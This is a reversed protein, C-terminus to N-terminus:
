ISPVVGIELFYGDEAEGFAGQSYITFASVFVGADAWCWGDSGVM